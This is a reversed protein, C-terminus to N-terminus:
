RPASDKSDPRCAEGATQQHAGEETRGRVGVGEELGSKQRVAGLEKWERGLAAVWAVGSLDEEELPHGEELYPTAEM